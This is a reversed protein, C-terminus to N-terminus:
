RGAARRLAAERAAVERAIEVNSMVQNVGHLNVIAKYDVAQDAERWAAQLIDLEQHIKEAFYPFNPIM